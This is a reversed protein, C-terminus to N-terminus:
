GSRRRRIGEIPEPRGTGVGAPSVIVEQSAAIGDVLLDVEPDVSRKILALGIPGLEHHRAVSTLRGVERDGLHVPAGPEPLEHESGDLHVAVLRRPPKGLNFVRAVTEQGRYCGKELHVATRLWDLEHPIAREDVETALRPRWSAVRLAEWAWTGAMRAGAAKAADVVEGLDGRPVLWLVMAVASGPHGTTPGYATSNRALGPWPDSWTIPESGDPLRLQPGAAQTGLVATEAAVRVQVDLMFRMSDLFDAMPQATAGETILWTVTGDDVVGARHAIRGQPDLLLLETSVGVPLQRLDQSSLSNLWSLRDTGSVCLVGFHSLDVVGIGRELARQEAVPDGYHAAVGADAGSAAVAGPNALLPSNM